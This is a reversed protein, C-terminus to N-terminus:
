VVLYIDGDSGLSADPETSGTLVNLTPVNITASAYNTIDHTGNAVIELSGSPKIYGNPIPVNVNASAYETVDHTGNETITKTGTPTIGTEIKGIEDPINQHPINGTTGNKNRIADCIGKFLDKITNYAM